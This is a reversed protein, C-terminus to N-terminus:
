GHVRAKLATFDLTLGKLGELVDRETFLSAAEARLRDMGAAFASADPRARNRPKVGLYAAVLLHM